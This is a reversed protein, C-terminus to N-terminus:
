DDFTDEDNKKRIVIVAGTMLSVGIVTFFITGMGGTNPLKGKEVNQVTLVLNIEEDANIEVDIPVSLTNFGAPALTETIRYKGPKLDVWRFTSINTQKIHQEPGTPVGEPTLAQLSFNAGELAIGKQNVKKITISGLHPIITVPPDIEVPPNDKIEFIINAINTIKIVGNPIEIIEAEIILYIKEGGKLDITHGQDSDIYVYVKTQDAGITETFPTFTYYGGDNKNEIYLVSGTYKLGKPLTDSITLRPYKEPDDPYDFPVQTEVKYQVTQGVNFDRDEATWEVTNIFENPNYLRMSLERPTKAAEIDMQVPDREPLMAALRVTKTANLAENKPYIYVDYNLDGIESEYPIDVTYVKPDIIYGDPAKVETVTYRGLPLNILTIQGALDTSSGKPSADTNYQYDGGSSGVTMKFNPKTEGKSVPILNTLVIEGSPLKVEQAKASFKHTQVIEYTVTQRVRSAGSMVDWEESELKYGDNIVDIPRDKELKMINLNGTANIDIKEVANVKLTCFFMAVLLMFIISGFKMMKKM